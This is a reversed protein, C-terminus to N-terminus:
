QLQLQAKAAHWAFWRPHQVQQTPSYMTRRWLVSIPMQLGSACEDLWHHKADPRVQVVYGRVGRSDQCHTEAARSIKLNQSAALCLM